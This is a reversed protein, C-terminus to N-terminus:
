TCCNFDNVAELRHGGAITNPATHRTKLPHLHVKELKETSYAWIPMDKFSKVKNKWATVGRVIEINEENLNPTAPVNGVQSVRGSVQRKRVICDKTM